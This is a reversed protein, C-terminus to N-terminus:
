AAVVSQRDVEAALLAGAKVLNRTPDESPKWWEPAWPWGDPAPAPDFGPATLQLRAARAYCEAARTLTGAPHEADHELSWGEVAVQRYREILILDTGRAM